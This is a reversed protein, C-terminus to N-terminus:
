VRSGRVLDSFIRMASVHPWAECITQKAFRSDWEGLEGILAASGAGLEALLVGPVLIIPRVLAVREWLWGLALMPFYFPWWFLLSLPISALGGTIAQLIGTIPTSFFQVPLLPFRLLSFILHLPVAAKTLVDQPGQQRAREVALRQIVAAEKPTM